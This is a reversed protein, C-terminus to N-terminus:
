VVSKRDRAGARFGKYTYNVLAYSNLVTKQSPQQAGILTDANLYQFTSELNGSVNPGLMQARVVTSLLLLPLIFKKM